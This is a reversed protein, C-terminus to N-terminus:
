DILFGQKLMLDKGEPTSFIKLFKETKPNLTKYVYNLERPVPYTHNFVTEKSPTVGDLSVIKVAIGQEKFTVATGNSCYGIATPNEGVYSVLDLNSSITETKSTFKGNVGSEASEANKLGSYKELQITEAFDNPQKVIFIPADPGGLEKWNTIKGSFIDTINARTLNKVPNKENVIVDLADRAVTVSTVLVKEADTLARTSSGLSSAGSIADKIGVGSGGGEVLITEGYKKSYLDAADNSLPQMTTSGSIRFAQEAKCPNSQISVFAAVILSSVLLKKFM